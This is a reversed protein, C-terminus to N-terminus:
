FQCMILKWADNAARHAEEMKFKLPELEALKREYEAKLAEYRKHAEAYEHSNSM